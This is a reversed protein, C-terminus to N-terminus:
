LASEVPQNNSLSKEVISITPQSISTQSPNQNTWLEEAFKRLNLIQPKQKQEDFRDALYDVRVLIKNKEIPYLTYSGRSFNQFADSKGVEKKEEALEQAVSSKNYSM